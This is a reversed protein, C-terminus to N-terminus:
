PTPEPAPEEEGAAESMRDAISGGLDDAGQLLMASIAIAAILAVASIAVWEITVMGFNNRAFLSITRM